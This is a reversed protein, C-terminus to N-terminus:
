KELVKEIMERYGEEGAFGMQRDVEKGDKFVIVTPISMVGYRQALSQAEDVNVKFIEVKGSFEDALKDLVPGAMKCPACWEAYFDVMVPLKSKLVKEEFDNQNIHKAGM